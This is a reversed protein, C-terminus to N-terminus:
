LIDGFNQDDVNLQSDNYHDFLHDPCLAAFRWYLYYQGGYCFDRNIVLSRLRSHFLVYVEMSRKASILM